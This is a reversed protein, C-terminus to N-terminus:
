FWIRDDWEELKQLILQGDVLMARRSFDRLYLEVRGSVKFDVTVTGRDRDYTIGGAEPPMYSIGNLNPPLDKLYPSNLDLVERTM